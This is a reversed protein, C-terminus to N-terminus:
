PDLDLEYMWGDNGDRTEVHRWAGNANVVQRKSQRVVTGAPLVSGQAADGTPRGHLYADKKLTVETGSQKRDSAAQLVAALGALNVANPAPKSAAQANVSDAWANPASATMAAGLIVMGLANRKFRQSM